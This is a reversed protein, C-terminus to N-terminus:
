QLHLAVDPLFGGHSNGVSHPRHRAATRAWSFSRENGVGHRARHNAGAPHDHGRFILTTRLSQAAVPDTWLDIYNEWGVMKQGLWPLTLISRYFSLRFSEFIPYIAFLGVFMLSPLLFLCALRNSSRM